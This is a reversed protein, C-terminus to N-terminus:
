GKLGDVRESTVCLFLLLSGLVVSVLALCLVFCCLVYRRVAWCLTVFCFACSLLFFAFCLRSRCCYGIVLSSSPPWTVIHSSIRAPMVGEGPGAEWCTTSVEGAM